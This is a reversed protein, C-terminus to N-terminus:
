NLRAQHWKECLRDVYASANATDSDAIHEHYILRMAHQITVCVSVQARGLVFSASLPRGWGIHVTDSPRAIAYRYFRKGWGEPLEETIANLMDYVKPLCDNTELQQLSMEIAVLDRTRRDCDRADMFDADHFLQMEIQKKLEGMQERMRCRLKSPHNALYVFRVMGEHVSRSLGQAADLLGEDILVNVGRYHEITKMVCQRVEIKMINKLSTFEPHQLGVPSVKLLVSEAADCIASM